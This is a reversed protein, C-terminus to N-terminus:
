IARALWLVRGVIRTEHVPKEYTTYQPNDSIIRIRAPSLHSLVELRKPTLAFGDYIIFLGPPSPLRSSIDILVTDAHCLTPQMGDGTIHVLRLNEIDIKGLQQLWSKQFHFPEAPENQAILLAPQQSTDIHLRALTITNSAGGAFTESETNETEVLSGLSVGLSDAVRALKVTSPNASKGSIVDYIFSTKVGASTALNASNIGRKKMESKLRQGILNVPPIHKMTAPM